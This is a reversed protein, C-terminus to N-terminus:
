LRYHSWIQTGDHFTNRELGVECSAWQIRVEAKKMEASTQRCRAEAEILQLIAFSRRWGWKPTHTHTWDFLRTNHTNTSATLAPEQPQGPSTMLVGGGVGMLKVQCSSIAPNTLGHAHLWLFLQWFYCIHVGSVLSSNCPQLVQTFRIPYLQKEENSPSLPAAATSGRRRGGGKNTEGEGAGRDVATTHSIVAPACDHASEHGLATLM